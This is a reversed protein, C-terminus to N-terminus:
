LSNLVPQNKKEKGQCFALVTCPPFGKRQFSNNFASSAKSNWKDIRLVWFGPPLPLPKTQLVWPSFGRKGQHDEWSGRIQLTLTATSLHAKGGPQQHCIDDCAPGCKWKWLSSSRKKHVSYTKPRNPNRQVDKRTSSSWRQPRAQLLQTRERAKM